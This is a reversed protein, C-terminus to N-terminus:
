PGGRDYVEVLGVGTGNALGALLATYRGPPLTVAVAAELDNGPALGAAMLEAAQSPDDRWDNDSIILTGASDRLELTPDALTGPVGLGPGIGRVVIRDSLGGNGLIFGAIVIDSGTSVFARTSLNALKSDVGQSLDYAEVLAVGTTGGNGSMIATYAGPDLTVVIASELDNTPPIGTALIEAEQTQRWNDNTITWLGTGHLELTPDALANPIGLPTLSPGIARLLVRKPVTGTIIFGGIGVNDGTQVRLRTSLNLPQAATPPLFANRVSERICESGNLDGSRYYGRARIYINQGTPLNLGTLTWNSGAATGNGRPTFTVGDISSELTVHAFRPSAGGLTWTITTQTGALNQLAASDNTLRAFSLRTQGGISNFLGGALIKGDAQVAISFVSSSANPDFSDALGTVPDLRAIFNRTQGGISIAGSFVGAALIKGDAQIAISYVTGNANPDFSDAAGTTADLRAIRNRTQGGISSAGNFDGGVLIKGDTQVAISNVFSSANPDFSDALGTTANLRAIRNRTQGGISSAGNFFGGALIKGDAQVAVSFVPGSANPDFSDALGTTADLRAIRNRTQGGISSPGEFAGAVLIKGDTQVAISYVTGNANPDFSDALGTSASLRAINHRTQGGISAFSGGVLIRGDAQVAISIVTTNADPDFSLDVTGDTNLRAINHRAVGQVAAFDGGILIKGDPQLATALVGGSVIGLDLTRDLRGDTELRAIRNRMQGGISGAGNFFGGVLIKGDSQVAISYVTNIANPDFSDALGTTPDLRAICNRMQGGISTFFGSALIKGDTQVAISFVFSSANPDFSDAVGTAPDLRAISNRTAGGISNAGSFAGGALIKGDAQVAISNVAHNANPNFSDALGTTPDLRAIRNRTAGGISNAGNFDGGALIKGDAQVAIAIVRDNANPDFSDALGTTSDLRAIHNRMQGGINTFFGGALIKGDAQVVISSVPGNASPDFSDAAGTTADLRAIFNRAQGGISSPGAFNGGALIKGDAQVAISFVTDSANPDFAADLTGDPNLRAIYKRTVLPGGNPSLTTFNGGLLIKGDPQVVVTFVTGNANPDFGDLASQARLATAGGALLVAVYVLFLAAKRTAKSISNM